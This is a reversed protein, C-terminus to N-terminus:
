RDGVIRSLETQELIYIRSTQGGQEPFSNFLSPFPGGHPQKLEFSEVSGFVRLHVLKLYEKMRFM